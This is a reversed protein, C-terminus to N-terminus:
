LCRASPKEDHRPCELAQNEACTVAAVEDGVQGAVMAVLEDDGVVDVAGLGDGEQSRPLLLAASKKLFLLHQHILNM